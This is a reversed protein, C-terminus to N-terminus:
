MFVFCINMRFVTNPSMEFYTYGHNTHTHTHTHTHTDLLYGKEITVLEKLLSRIHIAIILNEERVCKYRVGLTKVFHNEM